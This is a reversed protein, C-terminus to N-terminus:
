WTSFELCYMEIHNLSREFSEFGKVTYFFHFHFVLIRFNRQSHVKRENEYFSNDFKVTNRKKISFNEM